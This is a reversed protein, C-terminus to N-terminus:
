SQRNESELKGERGVFGHDREDEELREGVCRKTKTLRMTRKWPESTKRKRLGWVGWAVSRQRRRAM